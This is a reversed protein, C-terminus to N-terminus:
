LHSFLGGFPIVKRLPSLPTGREKYTEASERSWERRSYGRCLSCDIVALIVGLTGPLHEPALTLLIASSTEPGEAGEGQGTGMRAVEPDAM